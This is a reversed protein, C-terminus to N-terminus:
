LARPSSEQFVLGGTKDVYGWRRDLLVSALGQRFVGAQEYRPQIVMTGSTDIFGWKGDLQVPALGESFGGSDTGTWDYQPQIVMKGSADIFGTKGEIVVPALGEESFRGARQYKPQIVMQGTTDIYGWMASLDTGLQVAALGQSFSSAADYQAPIALEGNNQIFGWKGEATQVAAFGESFGEAAGFQPEIYLGGADDAYGWKGGAEPQVAALGESFGTEGAQAYRPQIVMRGIVDIFGWKGGPEPQVPAPGLSFDLAMHYQAPIVVRGTRDMFGWKGDAMFRYVLQEGNITWSLFYFDNVQTRAAVGSPTLVFVHVSGTPHVPTMVTIQTPSDVHFSTAAVGGFMVSTAGSFNTGTIIVTTGGILTGSTPIIDTITPGPGFSTTLVRVVLAVAQARSLRAEPDLKGDSGKVVGRYVLYATGPAHDPLVSNADSFGSLCSQGEALYWALLSAYRTSSAGTIAGTGALEMEALYRGLISEAQQRSIPEYPSFVLGSGTSSGLILGAASANEVYQYFISDQPVDQFTASSPQADLIPLATACM